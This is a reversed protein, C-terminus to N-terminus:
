KQGFMLDRLRDMQVHRPKGSDLIAVADESRAWALFKEVTQREFKERALAQDEDKQRIRQKDLELRQRAIGSKQLAAVAKAMNALAETPDEETDATAHELTELIQGALISAAGDAIHGGSRTLDLAFSSLTKLHETKQRRTLWERYGGDRWNSINQATAPSGEFHTDWTAIADAESNLWRLIASAPKGDLLRQNVQERLAHPLRAIKGQRAM